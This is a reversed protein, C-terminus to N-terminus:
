VLGTALLSVVTAICLASIWAQSLHAHPPDDEETVPSVARVVLEATLYVLGTVAVAALSLLLAREFPLACGLWAAFATQLKVSGGGVLRLFIYPVLLALFTIGAAGFSSGFGGHLVPRPGGEGLTVAVCLAVVAAPLTLANPVRGTREHIIAALIMLLCGTWLPWVETPPM